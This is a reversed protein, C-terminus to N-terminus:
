ELDTEFFTQIDLKLEAIRKELREIYCDQCYGYKYGVDPSYFKRGCKGRCPITPNERIPM